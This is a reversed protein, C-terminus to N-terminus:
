LLEHANEEETDTEPLEAKVVTKINSETNKPASLSRSAEAGGQKMWEGDSTLGYFDGTEIVWAISGATFITSGDTTVLESAEDVIIEAMGVLKGEQTGESIISKIKLM